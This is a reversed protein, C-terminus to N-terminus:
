SNNTAFKPIYAHESVKDPFGSCQRSFTYRARLINRKERWSKEGNSVFQARFINLNTICLRDRGFPWTALSSKSQPGYSTSEEKLLIM